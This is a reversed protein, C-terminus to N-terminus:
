PNVVWISSRTHGRTDFHVWSITDAINELVRLHPFKDPTKLIEAHVEQPTTEKPKIDFARGFRHMSYEAGVGGVFPRMGSYKFQGGWGYDNVTLKGFRKRLQDLTVLAYVDLLEWAREGRAEFIEPCVLEQLSFHRPRYIV